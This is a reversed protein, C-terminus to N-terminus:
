QSVQQRDKPVTGAPVHIHIAKNELAQPVINLTQVQSKIFSVAAQASEKMVDGLMGTLVLQERQSPM